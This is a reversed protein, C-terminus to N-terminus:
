WVGVKSLGGFDELNEADLHVCAFRRSLEFLDMLFQLDSEDNAPSGEHLEDRLSDIAEALVALKKTRARAAEEEEQAEQERDEAVQRRREVEAALEEDTAETITVGGPNDKLWAKEVAAKAERRTAFVVGNPCGEEAYARYEEGKQTVYYECLGDDEEPLIYDWVAFIGITMGERWTRENSM